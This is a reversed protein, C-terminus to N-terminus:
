IKGKWKIIFYVEDYEEMQLQSEISKPALFFTLPLFFFSSVLCDSFGSSSFFSVGGTSGVGSGSFDSGVGGFSSFSLGKSLGSGSASALSSDLVESAWGESM